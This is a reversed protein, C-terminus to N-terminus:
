EPVGWDNGVRAAEEKCEQIGQPLGCVVDRAGRHSSDFEGVNQKKTDKKTDETVM